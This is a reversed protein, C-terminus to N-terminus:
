HPRHGQEDGRIHWFDPESRWYNIHCEHKRILDVTGDTSAGDVVIYEINPYSQRFVSEMTREIEMEGNRVITVISVLPFGEATMASKGMLRSGGEMM